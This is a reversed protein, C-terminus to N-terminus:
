WKLLHWKTNEGRLLPLCEAKWIYRSLALPYFKEPDEDGLVGDKDTFTFKTIIYSDVNTNTITIKQLSVVVWEGDAICRISIRDEKRAYLRIEPTARAMLDLYTIPGIENPTISLQAWMRHAASLSNYVCADIYKVRTDNNM